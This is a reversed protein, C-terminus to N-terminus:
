VIVGSLKMATWAFPQESIVSIIIHLLAEAIATRGIWKHIGFHTRLSIGLMESALALRPGCLLPILNIASMIAARTSIETRSATPVVIYLINGSLYLIVMIAKFRTIAGMFLLRKFLHPYILNKLIFLHSTRLWTCRILRYGFRIILWTAIMCGAIITYWLPIVMKAQVFTDYWLLIKTQIQTLAM